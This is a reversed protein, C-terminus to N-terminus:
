LFGHTQTRLKWIHIEISNIVSNVVYNSSYILWNRLVTRCLFQQRRNLPSLNPSKSFIIIKHFSKNCCIFINRRLMFWAPSLAPFLRAVLWYNKEAELSELMALETLNRCARDVKHFVAGDIATERRNRCVPYYWCDRLRQTDGM